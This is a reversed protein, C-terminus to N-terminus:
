TPPREDAPRPPEAATDGPPPMTGRDQRGALASLGQPFHRNLFREVALRRGEDALTGEAHSALEEWSVDMEVDPEEPEGAGELVDRVQALRTLEARAEEDALLALFAAREISKGRALADLDEGTRPKM